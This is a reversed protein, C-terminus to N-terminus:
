RPQILRLLATIVEEDLDVYSHHSASIASGMIELRRM